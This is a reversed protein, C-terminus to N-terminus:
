EVGRCGCEPRQPRPGQRRHPGFGRTQRRAV